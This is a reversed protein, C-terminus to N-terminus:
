KALQSQDRGGEGRCWAGPASGGGGEREQVSSLFFIFWKQCGPMRWSTSDWSERNPWSFWLGVLGLGLDGSIHSDFWSLHSVPAMWLWLADMGWRPIYVQKCPCISTAPWHQRRLSALTGQHTVPMLVRYSSSLASCAGWGGGLLRVKGGNLSEECTKVRILLTVGSRCGVMKYHIDRTGKGAKTGSTTSLYRVGWHSM